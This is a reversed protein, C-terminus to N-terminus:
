LFLSSHWLSHSFTFLIKVCWYQPLLASLIILIVMKLILAGLFIITIFIEVFIQIFAEIPDTINAQIFLGLLMYIVLNVWLFRRDTPLDEPYGKFWCLQIYDKLM